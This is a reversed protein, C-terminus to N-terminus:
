PHPRKACGILIGFESRSGAMGPLSSGLLGHEVRRDFLIQLPYFPFIEEVPLPAVFHDLM